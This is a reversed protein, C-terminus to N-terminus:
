ACGPITQGQAGLATLTCFTERSVKWKGDDLVAKGQAGPLVVTGGISLDYTVMAETASTFAVSKVTASQVAKPDRLKAAIALAEQLQEVDALLDPTQEPPRKTDFFATWNARIEAEAAAPDAPATASETPSAEESATSASGSAATDEDDDGGCAALLSLSVGAVALIRVTRPAKTWLSM